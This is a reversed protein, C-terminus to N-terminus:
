GRALLFIVPVKYFDAKSKKWKAISQSVVTQQETTLNCAVCLRTEPACVNLVSELLHNNRYPTEFFIQTQGTKKTLNELFAIQKERAGREVPLYGNFAFNQGNFGSAMLALLISNPGILPIVQIGLQHAKEVVRNGPDAVCPTGAESFLGMPNGDLCPKLLANYDVNKFHENLVEFELQDISKNINMKRLLRRATRLEEVIYHNISNIIELNFPPFLQSFDAEGLPAPLLYLPASTPKPTM